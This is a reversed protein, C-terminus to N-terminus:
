KNGEHRNEYRFVDEKKLCYSGLEDWTKTRLIEDFSNSLSHSIIQITWYAADLDYESFTDEFAKRANRIAEDWIEDESKEECM